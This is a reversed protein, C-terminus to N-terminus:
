AAEVVEGAVLAGDEVHVDARGRAVVSRLHLVCARYAAVAAEAETLLAEAAEVDLDRELARLRAYLEGPDDLVGLIRRYAVSGIRQGLTPALVRPLSM